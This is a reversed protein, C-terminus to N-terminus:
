AVILPKIEGKTILLRYGKAHDNRDIPDLGICSFKGNIESKTYSKDAFVMCPQAGSKIENVEPILRKNEVGIQFGNKELLIHFRSSYLEKDMIKNKIFPKM